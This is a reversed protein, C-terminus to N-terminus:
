PHCGGRKAIRYLITSLVAYLCTITLSKLEAGETSKSTPIGFDATIYFIDDVAQLHGHLHRLCTSIEGNWLSPKVM